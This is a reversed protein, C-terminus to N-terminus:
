PDLPWAGASSSSPGPCPWLLSGAPLSASWAVTRSSWSPSLWLFFARSAPLSWASKGWLASPGAGVVWTLLGFLRAVRM